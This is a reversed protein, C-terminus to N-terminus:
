ELKAASDSDSYEDWTRANRRENLSAVIEHHLFNDRVVVNPDRQRADETLSVVTAYECLVNKGTLDYVLTQNTRVEEGFTPNLVLMGVADPNLYINGFVRILM